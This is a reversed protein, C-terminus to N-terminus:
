VRYWGISTEVIYLHILSALMNYIKCDIIGEFLCYLKRLYAISLDDPNFKRRHSLNLKLPLAPM